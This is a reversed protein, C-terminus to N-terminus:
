YLYDNLKILHKNEISICTYNKDNMRKIQYNCQNNKM